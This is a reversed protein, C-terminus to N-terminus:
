PGASEELAIFQPTRHRNARTEIYYIGLFADPLPSWQPISPEADGPMRTCTIRSLLNQIGGRFDDDGDGCIQQLPPSALFIAGGADHLAPAHMPPPSLM